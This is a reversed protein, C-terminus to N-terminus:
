DFRIETGRQDKINLDMGSTSLSCVYAFVCFWRDRGQCKSIGLTGVVNRPLQAM